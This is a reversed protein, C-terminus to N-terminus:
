KIGRVKSILEYAKQISQMKETALKIMEEPLGKAVLKDPHNQSVLQKYAKKIAANEIDKSIGLVLYAHSLEDEPTRQARSAERESNLQYKISDILDKPVKLRNCIRELAYQKYRNDFHEAAASKIQIEVFLRVLYPNNGCYDFFASIQKDFNFQTSKGFNFYEIALLKQKESLGLRRMVERAAVIEKESVRGDVKALYGMVAFTTQFFVKRSQRVRSDNQIVRNEAHGLDFFHGLLLGIVAGIPGSVFGGILAGSLKGIIRM